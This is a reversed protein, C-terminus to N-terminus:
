DEAGSDSENEIFDWIGDGVRTSPAESSVKLRLFDKQPEVHAPRLSNGSREVRDSFDRPKDDRARNPPTVKSRTLYPATNFFVVVQETSVKKDIKIHSPAGIVSGSGIRFYSPIDGRHMGGFQINQPDGKVDVFFLDSEISSKRQPPNRQSVYVPRKDKADRDDSDHTKEETRPNPNKPGQNDTKSNSQRAKFSGFKPVNAGGTSRAM